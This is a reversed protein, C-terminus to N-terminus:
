TMGTAESLFQEHDQLPLWHSGPLQHCSLRVYAGMIGQLVVANLICFAQLDIGFNGKLPFQYM